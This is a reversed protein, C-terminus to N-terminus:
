RQDEQNRSNVRWVRAELKVKAEKANIINKSEKCSAGSGSEQCIQGVYECPRLIGKNVVRM